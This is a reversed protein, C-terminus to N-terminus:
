EACSKPHVIGDIVGSVFIVLSAIGIAAWTSFGGEIRELENDKLKRMVGGELM